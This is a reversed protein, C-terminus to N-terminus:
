ALKIALESRLIYWVNHNTV